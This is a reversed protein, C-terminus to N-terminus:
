SQHGAVGRKVAPVTLAPSATCTLVRSGTDVSTALRLTGGWKAWARIQVTNCSRHLPLADM